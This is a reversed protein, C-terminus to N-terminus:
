VEFRVGSYTQSCGAFWITSSIKISKLRQQQSRANLAQKNAERKYAQRKSNLGSKTIFTKGKRGAIM